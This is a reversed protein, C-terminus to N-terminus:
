NVKKVLFYASGRDEPRENLYLLNFDEELVEYGSDIILKRLYGYTFRSGWTWYPAPSVFFDSHNRNEHVVSQIVAYEPSIKRMQLLLDNPNEIHYLGGINLLLDCTEFYDFVDGVIFRIRDQLNLIRVILKAKEFNNVRKRGEGSEDLQDIATLKSNADLGMAQIGYFCDAAFYELIQINKEPNMKRIESMASAIYKNLIVGKLEQYEAYTKDAPFPTKVGLSEFNHYWPSFFLRLESFNQIKRLTSASKVYNMLLRFLNDIRKVNGILFMINKSIREM